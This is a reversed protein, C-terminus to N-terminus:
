QERVEKKAIKAEFIKALAASHKKHAKEYRKKAKIKKYNAIALPLLNLVNGIILALTFCIFVWGM